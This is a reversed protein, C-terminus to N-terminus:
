LSYAQSMQLLGLPFAPDPLATIFLRYNPDMSETLKILFEEMVVMLELGLECNQLLVWTGNAAANQMAKVAIPEQGEGMSVVTPPPLKKKRALLEISETPDAGTSLLFIVPTKAIMQGQIQEITDTVPEVYKPGMDEINRVFWRCMLLCRDVRLCRIVLLKLFPGIVPIEGMKVEYDPINMNEPENDEYWRRWMAENAGM